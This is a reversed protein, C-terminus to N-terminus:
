AGAPGDELQASPVRRPHTSRRPYGGNRCQHVTPSRVPFPETEYLFHSAIDTYSREEACLRFLNDPRKGPEATRVEVAM